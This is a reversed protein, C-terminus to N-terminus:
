RRTSSIVFRPARTWRAARPSRSSTTPSRRSSRTATSTRRRRSATSTSRATPRGARASSSRFWRCSTSGSGSSSTAIKKQAQLALTVKWKNLLTTAAANQYHIWNGTTTGDQGPPTYANQAMNSFFFGYPSGTSATQWLLTPTKTSSANPYWANWDPEFKTTSDIGIAQLNKTIIQLSAVWDSWGSIVHPSIEVRNGKPDILDSGKYTFGNDTLLKKAAAPNYTAMAKAKAKVAPDTVWNPFLGNLGIADTPPAYGYEGLKSVTNRDIALSIAKRLVALSYPYKSTDLMLSIPYATTAYFAHYHAKDRSVYASEVNPVFNHTWDVQGSRILLLAADNSSAQVYELCPIKPAGKKWYSPNKNLVYDQTTFRGIKTFPGSGVPSANTFTAPGRVKSWIHQPLVFVLNLNAAIFQSDPTKLNIQVAYRGRAKVSALNTGPRYLGIQDLVKDQKGATLSYVVDASTLPRGDSWKVNKALALTLTKNGNSWNWSTALWPYQHGGGAADHDDAARLVRGQRIRREAPQDGHVPQLEERIGPRRLGDHGPVTPAAVTAASPALPTASATRAALAVLLRSVWLLGGSASSRGSRVPSKM